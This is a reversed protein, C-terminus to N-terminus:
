WGLATSIGVYAGVVLLLAAFARQLLRADLRAGAWGGILSGIIAATVFVSVLPIDISLDTGLRGLLATASNITIVLLSTGVAQKMPLRLVLVLAPVIAFGGGVGFFGTLVGVATAVILVLAARDPRLSFPRWTVWPDDAEQPDTRQEVRARRWMVSAVVLLLAAFLGMVVRPDAGAGVRGGLLAGGVGLLGFAVGDAWRVGGRHAHLLVSVIGTLGVIILSTTTAVGPEQDLLYVLAPVTIIAGGGGLAGMVLGVLLGIGIEIVIDM